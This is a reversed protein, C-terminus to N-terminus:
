DWGLWMYLDNAIREARADDGDKKAQKIAKMQQRIYERDAANTDNQSREKVM